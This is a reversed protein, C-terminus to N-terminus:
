LRASRPYLNQGAGYRARKVRRQFPAAGPFDVQFLHHLLRGTDKDGATAVLRHRIGAAAAVRNKGVHEYPCEPAREVAAEGGLLQHGALDLLRNDAPAVLGRFVLNDPVGAM